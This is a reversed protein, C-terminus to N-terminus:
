IESCVRPCAVGVGAGRNMARWYSSLNCYGGAKGSRPPNGFEYKREERVNAPFGAIHDCFARLEELPSYIHATGSFGRNGARVNIEVDDKDDFVIKITLGAEIM